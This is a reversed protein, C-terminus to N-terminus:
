SCCLCSLIVAARFAACITMFFVCVLFEESVMGWVYNHNRVMADLPDRVCVTTYHHDIHPPLTWQISWTRRTLFPELHLVIYYLSSLIVAARFAACITMFCVCLFSKRSWGGFMHNRVMADRPDRVCVTTYHDIHPPLTWQISLDEPRPSLRLPDCNSPQEVM